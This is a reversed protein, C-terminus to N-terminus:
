RGNPLRIHVTTGDASSTIDLSGGLSAVAHAAISLGLGFGDGGREGGRYFRELLRRQSAPEIGSGTDTVAFAVGEDDVAASLRIRGEVTYKAANAAVSALAQAALDANTVARVGPECEVELRVRERAQMEAAVDELLVRVDVEEVAPPEKQAQIEALLLLGRTLRRLRAAEREIDGLFMDRHGPIEKAGAQLVEIASSIATLPTRLEHAANTVFEREAQERRSIESVDTFVLVAEDAVHPPIGVISYRADADPAHEAHLERAAECFLEAALARLSVDGWTDPLPEGVRLDDFGHLEHAAQNAFRVRLAADVTVVGEHMGELVRRLRRREADLESFLRANDVALAAREALLEALHTEDPAFPDRGGRRVLVLIGLSRGRARLPAVVVSGIELSRLFALGAADGGLDDLLLDPSAQLMTTTGSSVFGPAPHDALWLCRDLFASLEQERSEDAHAVAVSALRASEDFIKVASWDALRPVVLRALGDLTERQDLSAALLSGAELLLARYRDTRAAEAAAARLEIETIVAAALEALTALEGASWTRPEHDIVCLTGIPQGDSAKLPIGAYALVNLDEIARSGSVLPYARADEVVFPQDSAVAHRCFSHSLPTERLTAWPEALGVCSKFFQRDQDVLSVLAVPADLLQRALRTLRDFAEEAPTDLLETRRLAAVREPDRLVTEADEAQWPM